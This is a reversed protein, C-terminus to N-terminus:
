VHCQWPIWPSFLLQKYSLSRESETQFTNVEAISSCCRSHLKKYEKFEEEEEEEEEEAGGGGRRSRRRRMKRRGEREEEEGKKKKKKQKENTKCNDISVLM